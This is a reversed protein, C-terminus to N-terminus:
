GMRQVAWVLAVAAIIGSAPIAIGRRYWKANRFAVLASMALAVVTLQGLEVGTNFGVLAGLFDHPALGADILAAAFGVGHVLGFAFVVAPRWPKM